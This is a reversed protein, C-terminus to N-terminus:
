ILPGPESDQCLGFLCVPRDDRSAEGRREKGMEAHLLCIILAHLSFRKFGHLKASPLSPVYGGM